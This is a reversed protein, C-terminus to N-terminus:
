QNDPVYTSARLVTRCQFRLSSYLLAIVSCASKGSSVYIVWVYITWLVALDCLVGRLRRAGGVGRGSVLSFTSFAWLRPAQVSYLSSGGSSVLLGTSLVAQIANIRRLPIRPLLTTAQSVFPQHRLRRSQHM